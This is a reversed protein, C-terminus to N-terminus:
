DLAQCVTFSSYTNLHIPRSSSFLLIESEHLNQHVSTIWIVIIQTAPCEHIVKPLTVLSHENFLDFM